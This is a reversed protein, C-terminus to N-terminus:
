TSALAHGLQSPSPLSPALPAVHHLAANLVIWFARGHMTSLGYLLKTRRTISSATRRWCQRIPRQALQRAVQLAVHKLGCNAICASLMLVHGCLKKNTFFVTYLSMAQHNDPVAAHLQQNWIQVLDHGVDVDLQALSIVQLQRRLDVAQTAFLQSRYQHAGSPRVAIHSPVNHLGHTTMHKSMRRRRTVPVGVVDACAHVAVNEEGEVFVNAINDPQFFLPQRHRPGCSRQVM